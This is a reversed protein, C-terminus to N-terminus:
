SRRAVLFPRADKKSRSSHRDREIIEFGAATIDRELDATSFFGVYPARGVAQMLPVLLRVLFGLPQSMENLCPTKSIFLGGPKLLRHISALATAREPLLHLLNYALVANFTADPWPSADGANVEFTINARGEAEAKERGIVIMESSIDTAVYHEVSPALKLATTGTGAGIELVADGPKLYRRTHEITREYGEPDRIPNAAYKRAMRDWFRAVDDTM